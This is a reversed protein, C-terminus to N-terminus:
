RRRKWDDDADVEGDRIVTPPPLKAGEPEATVEREPASTKIQPPRRSATRPREQITTMMTELRLAEENESVALNSDSQDTLKEHFAEQKSKERRDTGRRLEAQEERVRDSRQRAEIAEREAEARHRAEEQEQKLKETEQEVRRRMAAEEERREKIAAERQESEENDTERQQADPETVNEMDTRDKVMGSKREVEIDGQLVVSSRAGSKASLTLIGGAKVKDVAMSSRSAAKTAAEHVIKSPNVDIAEASLDLAHAVCSIWKSLFEVKQQKTTITKHDLEDENFLGQGFGTVNQVEIFIDHLFRFPPKALYKDAMKPRKILTGLSHQTNVIWQPTAQDSM